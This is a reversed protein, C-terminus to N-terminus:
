KKCFSSRQALRGCNYTRTDKIEASVVAIRADIKRRMKLHPKHPSYAASMIPFIAAMDMAIHFIGSIASIFITELWRKVRSLNETGKAM